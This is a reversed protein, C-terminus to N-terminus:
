SSRRRRCRRSSGTAHLRASVQRMLAGSAAPPPAIGFRYRAGRCATSFSASDLVAQVRAAAIAVPFQVSNRQRSAKAASAARIRFFAHGDSAARWLAAILPAAAYSSGRLRPTRCSPLASAFINRILWGDPKVCGVGDSLIGRTGLSELRKSPNCIRTPRNSEPERRWNSATCPKAAM